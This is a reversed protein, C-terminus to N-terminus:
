HSALVVPGEPVTAGGKHELSVKFTTGAGGPRPLKYAVCTQSSDSAVAFVALSTGAPHESDFRWFQYSRDPALMPLASVVLEGEQRDQDQVVVARSASDVGAPPTLSFVQLRGLDRPGQLEGTLDALRRASLIHEAEIQQRLVKGQIEALAAQERVATVEARLALYAALMLGAFLAFGAAVFWPLRAPLDTPAAASKAMPPDVPMRNERTEDNM